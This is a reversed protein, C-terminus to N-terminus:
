FKIFARLREAVAGAIKEPKGLRWKRIHQWVGWCFTLAAVGGLVYCVYEAWKYHEHINYLIPRIPEM